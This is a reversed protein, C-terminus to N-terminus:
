AGMAALIEEAPGDAIIVGGEMRIARTCWRRVVSFDHTAIVLIDAGGVLRALREEAKAMFAADGALFWEDMLLVQPEM